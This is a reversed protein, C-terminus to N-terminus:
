WGSNHVHKCGSIQMVGGGRCVCVSVGGVCEGVWGVGVCVGGCVCM